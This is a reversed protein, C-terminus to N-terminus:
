QKKVEMACAMCGLQAMPMLWDVLEMDMTPLGCITNTSMPDIVQHEITTAPDFAKDRVATVTKRWARTKITTKIFFWFPMDYRGSRWGIIQGLRFSAACLVYVVAWLSLLVIWKETMVEEKGQVCPRTAAVVVSELIWGTRVEPLDVRSHGDSM